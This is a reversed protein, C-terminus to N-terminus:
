ENNYPPKFVGRHAEYRKGVEFLLDEGLYPGILQLGAPLGDTLGCPINIGPLGALNIPVTYIDSLYMKVPDNIKEGIRFAPTPSTPTLILDVKQFARDFDERILSRVKQAKLYYADYYGASLAYTGLMIRRKVEAGFGQARTKLYTELLTEGSLSFGYRIGDYRALNASVESAMIIYYCPLAYKLSPLSVEEFKYGIEELQSIAQSIVREVSGDLGQAFCEKPLGIKIQNRKQPNLVVKSEDPLTTSDMKDQGQIIRFVIEADEVSKTLPGIQDLSSAMAMLGYRSVRGYTPKLGVVGCFCAPQRISGGTDSGLAYICEGAAVAAASGGSSGGPVRELDYPNKTPGFASTETSSGMAFEDLNTKGIIVAGAKKIKKIVTADYPAQYNELIKSSATCLWGEVLINDKIAVPAGLLPTIERGKEIEKDIEQAQLLAKEEDVKLYAHIEKEHKNIQAFVARTLEVVSFEKEKLGKQIQSLTLFM